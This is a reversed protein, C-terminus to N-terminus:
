YRIVPNALRQYFFKRAIEGIYMDSPIGDGPNSGYRYGLLDFWYQEFGIEGSPYSRPPRMRALSPSVPSLEFLESTADNPTTPIKFADIINQRHTPIDIGTTPIFIIKFIRLPNTNILDGIATIQSSSPGYHTFIVVTSKRNPALERILPDDFAPGNPPPNGPSFPPTAETWYGPAKLAYANPQATIALLDDRRTLYRM